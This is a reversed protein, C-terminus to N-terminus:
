GHHVEWLQGSSLCTDARLEKRNSVTVSVCPFAPEFVFEEAVIGRYVKKLHVNIELVM